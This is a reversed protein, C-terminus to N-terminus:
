VEGRKYRYHFKNQDRRAFDEPYKEQIEEYTMGDCVGQFIM